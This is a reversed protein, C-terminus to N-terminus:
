CRIWIRSIKYRVYSQSCQVNVFTFRMIYFTVIVDIYVYVICLYICLAVLVNVVAWAVATKAHIYMGNEETRLGHSNTLLGRQLTRQSMRPCARCLRQYYLIGGLHRLYELQTGVYIGLPGGTNCRQRSCLRFIYKTQLCQWTLESHQCCEIRRSTMCGVNLCLLNPCFWGWRNMSVCMCFVHGCCCFSMCECVYMCM